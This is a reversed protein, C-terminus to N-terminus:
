IRSKHNSSLQSVLPLPSRSLPLVPQATSPPRLTTPLSPISGYPPPPPPPLAPILEIRPLDALGREFELDVRSHIKFRHKFVWLQM